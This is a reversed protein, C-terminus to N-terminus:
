VALRGLLYRIFLQHPWRVLGFYFAGTRRWLYRVATACEVTSPGASEASPILRFGTRFEMFGLSDGFVIEADDRAIVEWSGVRHGVPFGDAQGRDLQVRFASPSLVNASLLRIWAPMREFWAVVVEDVSGFTDAAAFQFRDLYDPQEYISAVLSDSHPEVRNM